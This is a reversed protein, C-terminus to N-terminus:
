SEYASYGLGRRAARAKMRKEKSFICSVWGWFPLRYKTNYEVDDEYCYAETEFCIDRYASSWPPLVLEILWFVFYLLWFSFFSGVAALVWGWWAYGCCLGVILNVLVSLGLVEVSQKSHTTEHRLSRTSPKGCESRRFMWWLLTLSAFGKFPILRNYM